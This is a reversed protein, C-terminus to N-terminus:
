KKDKNATDKEIKVYSGAGFKKSVSLIGDKDASVSETSLVNGNEVVSLLLMENKEFGGLKLRVASNVDSSLYIKGSHFLVHYKNSAFAINKVGANEGNAFVSTIVLNKGDTDIGFAEKVANGAFLAHYLSPEADESSSAVFAGNKFVDALTQIRKSLEQKEFNKASMMYYNGALVSPAGNMWYNGFAAKSELPFNGDANFWVDKDAEVTSFAFAALSSFSDPDPDTDSSPTKEGRVWSLISDAKEDDAIGLSLAMLNIATYGGDHVAGEKDICGVYRGLEADYLKENIAKKNADAIERYKDANEKDGMLTYLASLDRMAGNFAINNYADIYGFRINYFLNSPKGSSTGNNDATLVYLLKDEENYRVGGGNLADEAFFHSVVKSLKEGVTMGLSIDSAKAGTMDVSELFLTNGEWLCIESVASIFAANTDYLYSSVVPHKMSTECSWVYGNSYLPYDRIVQKIKEREASDSNWVFSDAIMSLHSGSVPSVLNPIFAEKVIDSAMTNLVDPVYQENTNDKGFVVGNFSLFESVLANEAESVLIKSETEDSKKDKKFFSVVGIVLAIAVILCLLLTGWAIIMQKIRNIKKRRIIEARRLKAAHRLRREREIRENERIRQMDGNSSFDIDVLNNKDNM